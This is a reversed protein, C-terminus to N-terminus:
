DIIFTPEVQFGRLVAMSRLVAKVRPVDAAETVSGRIELTDGTLRVRDVHAQDGLQRRVQALLYPEVDEPRGKEILPNTGEGDPVRFELRDNIRVVGPVQEVARFALMAEYVTPVKGTLTVFGDRATAHVPLGALAPRHKIAGALKADLGSLGLQIAPEPAQNLGQDPEPAQNLGQDPKPAQNLGQDPKPDPEPDPEPRNPVHPVPPPPPTDPDRDSRARDVDIGAAQPARITIENRVETIGPTQAFKQGIAVAQALTPVTGRLIVVGRPDIAADVEGEPVNSGSEPPALPAPAQAMGMMPNALGPDQPRDLGLRHASLAGWWPPYSIAPPEFGWFPDDMYGFLPPPYVYPIAGSVRAYAPAPLRAPGVPGAAMGGPQPGYPTAPGAAAAAAASAAIGARQIEATDIVLDDGISPVISTAIQVAVDHVVKTGVRGVLVPRGGRQTVGFQYPATIPDSQLAQLIQTAVTSEQTQTNQTTQSLATTGVGPLAIGALGLLTISWGRRSM